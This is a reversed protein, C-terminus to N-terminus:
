PSSTRRRRLMIHKTVNASKQMVDKWKVNHKRGLVVKVSPEDEKCSRQLANISFTEPLKHIRVPSKPVNQGPMTQQVVEEDSTEGVQTSSEEDSLIVLKPSRQENKSTGKNDNSETNEEVASPNVEIDNNIRPINDQSSHLKSEDFYAHKTLVALQLTPLYICHLWQMCGVFIENGSRHAFLNSHTEERIYPYAVCGLVKLQSNSPTTGLLAEKPTRMTLVNTIMRNHLDAAHKIGERWYRALLGAHAIISLAKDLLISNIREHLVNSQPTYPSSNM